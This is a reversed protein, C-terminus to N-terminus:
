AQIKRFKPYWNKVGSSFLIVEFGESKLAVEISALGIVGLHKDTLQKSPEILVIRKKNM